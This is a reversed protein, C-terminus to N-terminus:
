CAYQYVPHSYPYPPYGKERKLELVFPTNIGVYAAHLANELDEALFPYEAHWAEVGEPRFEVVFEYYGPSYDLLTLSRVKRDACVRRIAALDDPSLQPCDAAKPEPALQIAPQTM